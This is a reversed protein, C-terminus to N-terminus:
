LKVDYKTIVFKKDKLKLEFEMSQLFKNDGDTAYYSTKVYYLDEKNWNINLNDISSFKFAKSKENSKLNDMFYQIETNEGEYYAKLFSVIVKKIESEKSEDDLEEGKLIEDDIEVSAPSSIFVPYACIVFKENKIKVASRIYYKEESGIKESNEKKEDNSFEEGSVLCDVIILNNELESYNFSNVYTVEFLKTNELNLEDKTFYKIRKSYEDSDGYYSMYEKSFNEAFSIANDIIQNELTKDEYEKKISEVDINIPNVISWIGKFVLFFLSSWLIILATKGFFKIKLKEIKKNKL